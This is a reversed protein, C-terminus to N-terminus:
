NLEELKAKDPTNRAALWKQHLSSTMQDVQNQSKAKNVLAKADNLSATLAAADALDEVKADTIDAILANLMTYDPQAIVPSLAAIAKLLDNKADLIDAATTQENNKAANAATVKTQLATWSDATYDAEKLTGAKDLAAQLGALDKEVGALRFNIEACSAFDGVSATAELRVHKTTVPADLDVTKVSVDRTWTGSKLETYTEGDDSVSIKYGTITGNGAGSRPTYLVQDITTPKDFEIDLWHPTPGNDWLTHWITATDGDLANSAKNDESDTEMSSATATMKSQDALLMEAGTKAQLGALAAQLDAQMTDVQDQQDAPLNRTVSKIARRLVNVTLPTFEDLNEPVLKLYADVKSYDAKAYDMNGLIEDVDSTMKEVDAVTPNYEGSLQYGAAILDAHTGDTDLRNLLELKKDLEITSTFEDASGLRIDDIYGDFPHEDDSVTAIPFMMTAKLQARGSEGLTQVLSGNVYLSIKEFENRFELEVWEGVPLSYDFAYERNERYIAVKGTDQQVAKITGYPSSFLIQEDTSDSARKVKVRLSNGLGATELGSIAAAKDGKLAQRGDVKDIQASDALDNNLGTADKKSDMNLSLASGDDKKEVDYNLNTGPVSDIEDTKAVAEALTASGKGWLNAAALVTPKKLRQYIDFESMGNDADFCMDNWVAFAGGTMQEDGAPLTFGGIQNFGRNYMTGDNLYDYYYSANPVIYYTGDTINLLEFGLDYMAKPDAWGTNWIHMQRRTISGDENEKYGKVEEGQSLQSLSGWVRAKYGKSEAYDFMANVYKRYAASGAEYEDAGIHIIPGDFVPNEPDTYEDWISRVFEMVDDFQHNLDLHDAASRNGNITQHPLDSDPSKLDPRVKTMALSHAPMDFEPVITVGMNRCENMFENFEEKTYFVDKATLDAKNKGGNGGEKIDSEMRFASYVDILRRDEEGGDETPVHWYQNVQIYNDNLHIQFDNMKYWALAKAYQKLFDMTFTKRGVDLLIGRSKMLPYDRAEGKALTGDESNAVAQLITRTGWYAATPHAAKIEVRDGVTYYYGEEGLAADDVKTFVIANSAPLADAAVKSVTLTKGTMERYDEALAGAAYAFSDDVYFVGTNEAIAFSGSAGKWEQLEPLIDPAANDTEEAQYKGPITVAIEKFVYSDDNADTVKFSVKVTKDVVPQHINLDADVVQELDTGNYVATFREGTEPFNVNLSTDDADVEDITIAEAVAEKSSFSTPVGGYVQMEYISITRWDPSLGDPCSETFSDIYLRVYRAQVTEDLTITDTISSPHGSIVKQDSWSGDANLDAGDVATQIRYASAKKNEWFIRVTRVNMDKGLDVYVWHSGLAEASSWRSTRSSTDGDFAKAATFDSGAEVSDSDGTKNLAVNENPDQYNPDKAGFVQMEYISVANWATGGDPDENTHTAIYLRVYRAEVADFEIVDTLASPRDPIHKVTTWSSEEAPNEAAVQISYDTAKRQEWFLRVAGVTKAEGLDVYIWQAGSGVGSGWRSSMSTTDGDTANSARVSNAEISSAVATKNLAMNTGYAALEETSEAAVVAVNVAPLLSTVGTGAALAMSLVSTFLKRYKM